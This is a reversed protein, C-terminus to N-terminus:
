VMGMRVLFGFLGKFMKILSRQVFSLDLDVFYEKQSYYKHDAINDKTEEKSLSKFAAFWILEGFSPNYIYPKNMKKAFKLAEKQLKQSQKKIKKENMGPSNMVGIKSIVKGGSATPAHAKKAQKIGQYSGSTILLMFRQHFYRPRHM